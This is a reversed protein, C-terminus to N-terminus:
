VPVGTLWSAISLWIASGALAVRAPQSLVYVVGGWLTVPHLRGRSRLDWAVLAVLFVDSLLFFVLPNQVTTIGPFRGVAATMLNMSALLMLRKHAQAERRKVVALTVFAPFLLMDTLPVLLFVLPPAAVGVFGSPRQAALISAYVGLVVMAAALVVGYVGLKRHLATRGAGVLSAQVLLLVPWAAFV